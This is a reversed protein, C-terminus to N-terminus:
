QDRPIVQRASFRGSVRPRGGVWSPWDTPAREVREMPQGRMYSSSVPVVEKYANGVSDKVLRGEGDLEFRVVTLEQYRRELLVEAAYIQGLEGRGMVKVFVPVPLPDGHPYFMHLNVAYEGPQRTRVSIAEYNIEAADEAKGRDDRELNVSPAHAHLGWGVAIGDPGMTWLDVDYRTGSPWMAEILIEARLPAAEKRAVPHILFTVLFIVAVLCLLMLFLMDRFVTGAADSHESLYDFREM